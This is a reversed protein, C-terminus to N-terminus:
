QARRRRVSQARAAPDILTHAHRSRCQTTTHQGLSTISGPGPSRVLVRARVLAASAWARTCALPVALSHVRQRMSHRPLHMVAQSAERHTPTADCGRPKHLPSCRELVAPCGRRTRRGATTAAAAACPHPRQQLRSCTAVAVTVPQPEGVAVRGGGKAERGAARPLHAGCRVVRHQPVEDPRGRAM